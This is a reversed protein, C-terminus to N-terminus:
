IEMDRLAVSASGACVAFMRQKCRGVICDIQPCVDSLLDFGM